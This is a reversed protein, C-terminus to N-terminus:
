NKTYRDITIPINSVIKINGFEEHYTLRFRDPHDEDELVEDTCEFCLPHYNALWGSPAIEFDKEVACLHCEWRKKM